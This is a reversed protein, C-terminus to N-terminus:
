DDFWCEDINSALEKEEQLQEIARRARLARRSALKKRSIQEEEEFGVLLDFVEIQTDNLDQTKRLM